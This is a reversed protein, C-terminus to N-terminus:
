IVEIVRQATSLQISLREQIHTILINLLPKISTKDQIIMTPTHHLGVLDVLVQKTLKQGQHKRLCDVCVLGGRELHIGTINKKSECYVCHNMVLPIGHFQCMDVFFGLLSQTPMSALLTIAHDFLHYLRPHDGGEISFNVLEILASLSLYGEAGQLMQMPVRMTKVHALTWGKAKGQKLHFQSYSGLATGATDKSKIDFIRRAYFSTLGEKGLVNVMADKDQYPSVKIVYGEVVKNLIPWVGEDTNVFGAM